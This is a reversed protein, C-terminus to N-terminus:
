VNERRLAENLVPVVKMRENTLPDVARQQDRAEEETEYYNKVCVTPSRPRTVPVVKGKCKVSCTYVTIAIISYSPMQEFRQRTVPERPQHETRLSEQKM